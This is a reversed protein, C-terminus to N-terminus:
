PASENHGLLEQAADLPQGRMTPHSAFAHGLDHWGVPGIGAKDYACARV